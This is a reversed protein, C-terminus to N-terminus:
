REAESWLEALTPSPEIEDAGIAVVITEGDCHPKIQKAVAMLRAIFQDRNEGTEREYRRGAVHATGDPEPDNVIEILMIRPAAVRLSAKLATL